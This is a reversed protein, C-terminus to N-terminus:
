KALSKSVLQDWRAKCTANGFLYTGGNNDIYEAVKAWPVKSPLIDYPNASLKRVAEELLRVDVPYWRPNRLRKEAPKTLTRFRGRLTSEAELYGGEEKIQKFTLGKARGQILFDDK